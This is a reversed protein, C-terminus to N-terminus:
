MYIWFLSYVTVALRNNVVAVQLTVLLAVISINNHKKRSAGNAGHTSRTIVIIFCSVDCSIQHSQASLLSSPLVLIFGIV